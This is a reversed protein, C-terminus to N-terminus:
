DAAQLLQPSFNLLYLEKTARTIATYLWRLYNDDIMDDTLYGQDVFVAPWQGGQAKHCTVAYAFKVQLANFYPDEKVAKKREAKTPLHMYQELTASYLKNQAERPMAPGEVDISDLWLVAEFPLEGPYDVMRMTAHVFQFGYREEWAGIRQIELVDGNAIFGAKSEEELWHYNNKVVMILDGGSVVEERFFVRARVSQNFLNARKNSRTIILAGEDGYKGFASELFDQLSNGDISLVDPQAPIVFPLMAHTDKQWLAARVATALALIGSDASQRTVDSLECLASTVPFSTSLFRLDLAPSEESGVPPLQAGDGILLLRCNLGSYVYTMLDDLLSSGPSGSFTGNGIMSAEDVVFVTHTHLNRAPEFSSAGDPNSRRFYIKKHITYAREESYAGLVKAARGTPALLVCKLRLVGLTKVLASVLTTKGTGAYGKVALLCNPKESVAFRAMAHILKEQSPTPEFGFNQLLLAELRQPNGSSPPTQINL